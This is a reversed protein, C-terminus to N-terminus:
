TDAAALLDAVLLTHVTHDAAAAVVVAAGVAAAGLVAATDIDAVMGAATEVAVVAFQLAVFSDAPVAVLKQLVLHCDSEIDVFDFRSVELRSGM